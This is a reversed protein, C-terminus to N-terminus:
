VFCINAFSQVQMTFFWICPNCFCISSLYHILYWQLGCPSIWWAAKIWCRSMCLHLLSDDAHLNMSRAPLGVEDLLKKQKFCEAIGTSSLLFFNYSSITLLVVLIRTAVTYHLVGKIGAYGEMMLNHKTNQTITWFEDTFSCSLLTRNYECQFSVVWKRGAIGLFYKLTRECVLREDPVSFFLFLSSSFCYM